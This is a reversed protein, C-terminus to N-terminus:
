GVSTPRPHGDLAANVEESSLGLHLRVRDTLVALDDATPTGCVWLTRARALMEDFVFRVAVKRAEDAELQLVANRALALGTAEAMRKRTVVTQLASAVAPRLYRHTMELNRRM